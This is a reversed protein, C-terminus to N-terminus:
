RAKLREQSLAYLGHPMCAVNGKASLHSACRLSSAISALVQRRWNLQDKFGGVICVHLQQKGKHMVCVTLRSIRMSFIWQTISIEGMLPQAGEQNPPQKAATTM